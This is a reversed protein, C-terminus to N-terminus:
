GAERHEITNEIDKVPPRYHRRSALAIQRLRPLRTLVGLDGDQFTTSEWAFFQELSELGTLPRLSAIEGCNAVKLKTLGRLGAVADLDTLKRCTEIALERLGGLQDVGALDELGQQLYLGLFRLERLKEVGATTNLRRGESLELRRLDTLEGFRALDHDPPAFVFLEELSRCNFVSEFGPNWYMGLQVLKQFKSFDLALRPKHPVNLTLTELDRLLSIPTLDRVAGANLVLGRLDPIRQLFAVDQDAVRISLVNVKERRMLEAYEDRWGGAPVVLAPRDRIEAIKPADAM